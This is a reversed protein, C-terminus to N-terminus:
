DMIVVLYVFGQTMSLYAIGATWVEIPTGALHM